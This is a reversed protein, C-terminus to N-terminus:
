PQTFFEDPHQLVYDTVLSDFDEELDYLRDDLKDFASTDTNEMQDWRQQRDKSPKSNPFVAIVETLIKLHEPANLLHFGMLADEWVMGTSNAFFQDHGGNNVESLYWTCAYVALQGKTAPEISRKYTAEDEYFDGHEWMVEIVGWALNDDSAPRPIKFNTPTTQMQDSPSPQDADPTCGSFGIAIILPVLSLRM